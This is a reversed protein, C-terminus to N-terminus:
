NVVKIDATAENRELSFMNERSRAFENPSQNNLSEHLWNDNYDQMWDDTLAQVERISDFMYLDLIEGRYTRNFREIYGNQAPKGPQIFILKIHHSKAWDRFAKSIFEPGNDTRIELPYGRKLAISDLLKIVASAPTSIGAKIGLCERNYDDIVNITRFRYGSTLADSMFDVSWCLNSYLPQILSKRDRSPLRKKPKIRLNLQMDCYVRHVRKHNWLFGNKRLLGFLKGFGRRPYQNALKQLETKRLM